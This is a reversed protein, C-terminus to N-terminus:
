VIWTQMGTVSHALDDVSLTTPSFKVFPVLNCIKKFVKPGFQNIKLVITTFHINVRFTPVFLYNFM